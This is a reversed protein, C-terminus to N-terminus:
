YPPFLRRFGHLLIVCLFFLNRIVIGCVNRPLAEYRPFLSGLNQFSLFDSKLALADAIKKLVKVSLPYELIGDIWEEPISQEGVVAGAIAGAIAGTTDTDGGCNLVASLTDEFNGFHKYCAYLVVPVTHYVYGTVGRSLEMQDAFQEVSLNQKIGDSILDVLTNWEKDNQNGASRLLALFSDSLPRVTLNERIIWATLYAVAKAGTLARPDTHTIRTSVELFKDMQCPDSAFFAGLVASRMAPGNGASYVGSKAPSFGIWLRIVSRLTAWGVGAPLLILWWKLYKSFQKAFLESSDSHELISQAVFVTHETDDSIMGFRNLTPAVGRPQGSKRIKLFKPFRLLRHHWEGKFLKKGRQRSIGEAPLGLSDGVATGIIIGRFREQLDPKATM